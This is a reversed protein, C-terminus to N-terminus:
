WKALFFFEDLNRAAVPFSNILCNKYPAPLIMGLNHAHRLNVATWSLMQIEYAVRDIGGAKDVNHSSRAM